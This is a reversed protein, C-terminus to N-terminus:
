KPVLAVADFAVATTGYTEGTVDSLSIFLGSSYGFWYTGLSVWKGQNASQDVWVQTYGGSHRVWYPASRTTARVTPIYVLVEYNSPTIGNFYWRAWEYAQTKTTTNATWRVSNGYGGTIEAWNNGGWTFGWSTNDLIIANAPPNNVSGSGGVTFVNSVKKVSRDPTEAIVYWTQGAGANSPIFVTTDIAGSSNSVTSTVLTYSTASQGVGVNIGTNAPFGGGRASVQTGPQGSNPSITLDTPPQTGGSIKQYSLRAVADVTNEYYEMQVLVQGGGHAYDAVYTTAAQNVYKDILLNGGVRLRVGDDATVTFRWTGAELNLTRSWRASWLDANITGPAPSGQGFNFDINADDRILSPSGSQTTNNFYEGRWNNIKPDTINQWTLAAASQGGQEFYEVKITHNGATLGANATNTTLPHQTWNDILLNNDVWVRIGDDSYAIFQWTGAPFNVTTTWRASWNDPNVYAPLPANYGLNFSLGLESRQIAPTGQLATNNWYTANWTSNNTPLSGTALASGTLTLALVGALAVASIIRLLGKM